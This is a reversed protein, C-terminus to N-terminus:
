PVWEQKRRALVLAGQPVRDVLRARLTFRQPQQGTRVQGLGAATARVPDLDAGVIGIQAGRGRGAHGCDLARIFGNVQGDDTVADIWTTWRSTEDSQRM